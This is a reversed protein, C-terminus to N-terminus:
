LAHGWLCGLLAPQLRRSPMPAVYVHDHCEQGTGSVSWLPDTQVNAAANALASGSQVVGFDYGNVLYEASAPAAVACLAVVTVVHVIRRKSFRRM